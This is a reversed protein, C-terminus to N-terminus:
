DFTDEEITEDEADGKQYTNLKEDIEKIDQYALVHLITPYICVITDDLEFKGINDILNFRKFKNMIDNLEGKRIRKEFLGTRTLEEHLDNMKIMIEDHLSIEKQKLYYLKRLSLLIISEAKKLTITHYGHRNVLHLVEDNEYVRLEYDIVEFYYQFIPLMSIIEYYDNRTKEKKATILCQSLLKNALRSFDEQQQEKLRAYSTQFRSAAQFKNM